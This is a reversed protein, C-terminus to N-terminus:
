HAFFVPVTMTEIMSRTVGGLVAQWARAHGYGGMVILDAHSDTAHSLLAETVSVDPIWGRRLREGLSPERSRRVTVTAAVGHRALHSKVADLDTGPGTVDADGEVFTVIEVQKARQLLPLADGLARASERTPTWAVLIRGAEAGPAVDPYGIHPVCLVPVALETLMHGIADADLGGGTDTAHQGVLILDACRSLAKAADVPMLSAVQLAIPMGSDRAVGAVMHQVGQQLDQTQAHTARRVADAVAASVQAMPTMPPMALLATLEAGHQRALAVGLTLVHRAHTTDGVLAILHKFGSM